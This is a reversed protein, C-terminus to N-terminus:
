VALLPKIIKKGLTEQNTVDLLPIGFTHVSQLNPRIQDSMWHEEKKPIKNVECQEITWPGHRESNSMLAEKWKWQYWWYGDWDKKNEENNAEGEFKLTTGVVVPTFNKCLDSYRDDDIMVTIYKIQKRKSDSTFSQQINFPIRVISKGFSSDEHYNKYNEVDGIISGPKMAGDEMMMEKATEMLMYIEKYIDLIQRFTKFIAESDGSM